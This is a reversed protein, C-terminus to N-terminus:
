TFAVALRGALWVEYCTSVYRGLYFLLARHVEPSTGNCLFPRGGM